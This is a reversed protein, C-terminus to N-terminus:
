AGDDPVVKPPAWRYRVETVMPGGEPGSVSQNPKGDLRDDIANGLRAAAMLVGADAEDQLAKDLVKDYVRLVKERRAKLATRYEAAEMRGASKLAEPPQNDATFAPRPPHAPAAWEQGGAPINSAPKNRHAWGVKINAWGPHRSGDKPKGSPM